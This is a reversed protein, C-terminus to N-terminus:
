PLAYGAGRLMAALRILPLGMLATPDDSDIAECLTIGLAESRLAGACDLPQDRAVYRRIAADDLVRFRVTTTVIALEHSGRATDLVCLGSLFRVVQGSQRGLQACAREATGPKGLIRQDPGVAVQDGGIIVADPHAIAVAQAKALSLRRVLAEPSENEQAAEDVEPAVCGFPLQLRELLARRYVSTSALILPPASPSM